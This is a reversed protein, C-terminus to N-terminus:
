APVMSPTKLVVLPARESAMQQAMLMTPKMAMLTHMGIYDAGGFSRANALAAARMLDNLDVEGTKLKEVAIRQLKDPPTEEMLAVLPDLDGFTLSKSTKKEEALTTSIGLEHALSVGLSAALMGEGVKRQFARRSYNKM